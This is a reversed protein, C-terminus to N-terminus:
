ESWGWWIVDKESEKIMKVFENLTGIYRWDNFYAKEAKCNAEEQTTAKVFIIGGEYSGCAEFVYIKKRRM